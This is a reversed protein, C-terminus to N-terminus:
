IGQLIIFFIQFFDLILGRDFSRFLDFSRLISLDFSQFIRDSETQNFLPLFPLYFDLYFLSISTWLSFPSLFGFFFPFFFDLYFLSIFIWLSFPFLLRFLFFYFDLYFNSFTFQSFFFFDNRLGRHLIATLFRHM